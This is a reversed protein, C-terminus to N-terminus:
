TVKRGSSWQASDAGFGIDLDSMRLHIIEQKSILIPLSQTYFWNKKIRINSYFHKRNLTNIQKIYTKKKFVFLRFFIALSLSFLFCFCFGEGNIYSNCGLISNSFLCVFLFAVVVVFFSLLSTMGGLTNIVLSVPLM